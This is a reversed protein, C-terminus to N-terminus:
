LGKDKWLRHNSDDTASVIGSATSLLLNPNWSKGGVGAWVSLLVTESSELFGNKKKKKIEYPPETVNFFPMM